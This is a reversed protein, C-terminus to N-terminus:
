AAKKTEMACKPFVVNQNKKESIKTDQREKANNEKRKLM